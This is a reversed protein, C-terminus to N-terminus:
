NPPTTLAERLDMWIEADQTPLLTKWTAIRELQVVTMSNIKREAVAVRSGNILMLRKKTGIFLWALGRAMHQRHFWNIQEISVQHNSGFLATTDRAPETPAKIEIWGETGAMCYNVDPMGSVLGNEVRQVRDTPRCVRERLREFVRAELQRDSM